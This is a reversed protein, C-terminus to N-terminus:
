RGERRTLWRFTVLRHAYLFPLRPDDPDVGYSRAVFERVPVLKRALLRPNALDRRLRARAEHVELALDYARELSPHPFVAALRAPPDGEALAANVLALSVALAIPDGLDRAARFDDETVATDAGVVSLDAIHRALNRPRAGHHVVVHDCLQAILDPWSPVAVEARGVQLVRRRSWLDDFWTEPDRGTGPIETHLDVATGRPSLRVAAAHYDDRVHEELPRGDVGAEMFRPEIRYGLGVELRELARRRDRPHVLLDADDTHRASPGPYGASLLAGGKLVLVRVDERAFDAAVTAVDDALLANAAVRATLLDSLRARAESPVNAAVEAHSVAHAVAPAVASTEAHRIVNSWDDVGRAEEALLDARLAGIPLARLM